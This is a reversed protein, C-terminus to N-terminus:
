KAFGVRVIAPNVVGDAGAAVGYKANHWDRLAEGHKWTAALLGVAHGYMFGTIGMISSPLKECQDAIDELKAGADIRMQMLLGWRQAFEIIAASTETQVGGTSADWLAQDRIELEPADALLRDLEAQEMEIRQRHALDQAERQAERQLKIKAEHEVEEATLEPSCDPGFTKDISGSMARCFDRELLDIDSDQDVRIKLSNFPFEIVTRPYGIFEFHAARKKFNKLAERIHTGPPAYAPIHQRGTTKTLGFLRSFAAAGDYGAGDGSLRPLWVGADNCELSLSIQQAIFTSNALRKMATRNLGTGIVRGSEREIGSWSGSDEALLEAIIPRAMPYDAASIDVATVFRVLDLEEPLFTERNRITGGMVLCFATATFKQIVRVDSM